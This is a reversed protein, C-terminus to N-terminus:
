ERGNLLKYMKVLIIEFNKDTLKLIEGRFKITYVTEGIFDVSWWITGSDSQCRSVLSISADEARGNELTVKFMVYPCKEDNFRVEDLCDDIGLIRLANVLHNRGESKSKAENDKYREVADKMNMNFLTTDVM